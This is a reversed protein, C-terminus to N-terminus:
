KSDRLHLLIREGLEKPMRGAGIEQCVNLTTDMTDFITECRMCVMADLEPTTQKGQDLTEQKLRLLDMCVQVSYEAPPVEKKPLVTDLAQRLRLRARHVRTKVTAEKMDLIEAVDKGSFGLIDKLLLPLRFEIPLGVIAEEIQEKAEAQIQEDLPTKSKHDVYGLSPEGFPLMEELSAMRKPQGARLRHMRSCARAAITYLWTKPSSRGEFQEWHKYAALFTEQVIDDAEESSGCLRRGLSYIMSGHEEM